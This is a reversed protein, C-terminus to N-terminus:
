APSNLTTLGRRSLWPPSPKATLGCRVILFPSCTQLSNTINRLSIPNIAKCCKGNYVLGDSIIVLKAGPEYVEAIDSCLDNLRAFSVEEAYDPADGLVKVVKNASKFPYAPLCMRVTKNDKVFNYITSLFKPTGERIRDLSNADKAMRYKFIIELIESSKELSEADVSSFGEIPSLQDVKPYSPQDRVM